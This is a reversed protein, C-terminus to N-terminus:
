PMIGWEGHPYFKFEFDKDPSLYNKVILGQREKKDHMLIAEVPENGEPAGSVINVITLNIPKYGRRGAEELVHNLMTDSFPSGRLSVERIRGRYNEQRFTASSDLTKGM